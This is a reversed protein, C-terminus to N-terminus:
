LQSCGSRIARWVVSLCECEGNLIIYSRMRCSIEFCVFSLFGVLRDPRSKSNRTDTLVFKMLSLTKQYFYNPAYFEEILETYETLTMFFLTSLAVASCTERKTSKFSQVCPRCLPATWQWPDQLRSTLTVAFLVSENRSILKRIKKRKHGTFLKLINLFVYIVTCVSIGCLDKM